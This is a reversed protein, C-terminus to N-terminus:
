EACVAKNYEDALRKGEVNFKDQAIKVDQNYTVVYKQTQTNYNTYAQNADQNYKAALAVLEDHWGPRHSDRIEKADIDYKAKLSAITQNYVALENKVAANYKAVAAAYDADLQAYIKAVGANFVAQAQEVTSTPVCTKVSAAALAKSTSILTIAFTTTLLVALFMNKM